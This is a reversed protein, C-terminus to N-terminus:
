GRTQRTVSTRGGVVKIGRKQWKRNTVWVAWTTCDQFARGLVVRHTEDRYATVGMGGHRYAAKGNVQLAPHEGPGHPQPKGM